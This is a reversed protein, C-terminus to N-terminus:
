GTSWARPQRFGAIKCTQKVYGYPFLTFFHRRAQTKTFGNKEAIFAFVFRADPAIHHDDLYERMYSIIEHIEPTFEIGEENGIHTAVQLNWENPDILYGAEDRHVKTTGIQTTTIIDPRTRM